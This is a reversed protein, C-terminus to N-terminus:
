AHRILLRKLSLLLQKYDFSDCLQVLRIMMSLQAKITWNWVGNLGLDVFDWSCGGGLVLMEINRVSQVKLDVLDSREFRGWEFFFLQEVSRWSEVSEFGFLQGRWVVFLFSLVERMWVAPSGGWGMVALKLEDRSMIWFLDILVRIFCEHCYRKHSIGWWNLMQWFSVVREESANGKRWGLAKPRSPFDIAAALGDQLLIYKHDFLFGM